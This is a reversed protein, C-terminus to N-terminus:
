FTIAIKIEEEQGSSRLVKKINNIYLLTGSRREIRNLTDNAYDPHSPGIYYTNTAPTPTGYINAESILGIQRFDSDVGTLLYGTAEDFRANIIVTNACLENVINSGHGDKPAMVASAIAGSTGPIIFGRCNSSNSYGSGGSTVNIESVTKSPSIVVEIVADVLPNGNSDVIICIAGDNYNSGASGLSVDTVVGNVVTVSSVTAGSGTVGANKVMADPSSFYGSGPEDIIIQNLTNDLNRSVHAECVVTPTESTLTTVVANAGFTGRQELINFASIGNKSAAQQTAWQSTNDDYTKYKVPIFDKSLFYVDSAELSGMYKWVYGDSLSIVSTGTGVPKITSLGNHNNNICKYIHNDETFVYYPFQYSTPGIPSLPDLADSYASFAQGSVWNYRKVALRCNDQTIRKMVIINDLTEKSGINTVDVDDPINENSWEDNKGIFVYLNRKYFQNINISDIWIWEVSGDSVVGSLHTPPNVGSTGTSKCAYKNSEYFVLTGGTYNTLSTWEPLEQLKISDILSAAAFPRIEPTFKAPM